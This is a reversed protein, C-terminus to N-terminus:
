RFQDIEEPTLLNELGTAPEDPSNTWALRYNGDGRTDIFVFTYGLQYYYWYERPKIEMEMTKREVADPEGYRVYVRGRDTNIGSTRGSRYRGEATEMRRVFETLNHKSWFWALYAVKGSDSLSNYYALEKPTAIFELKRYYKEEQPSPQFTYPRPSPATSGITFQRATTVTRNNSHDTLTVGFLYSGDQISDIGLELTISAKAGSKKRVIPASRVITDKSLVDVLHYRFEYSGSDPILGYGELYACLKRADSGFRRGPNPVVVLRGTATDRLLAVALQISSLAPHAAFDPVTLTDIITGQNLSDAITVKVEYTGPPANISFQDVFTRQHQAADQFSKIRARKNITGSESFQVDIGKLETSVTFLAVLGDPGPQFALQDFPVGYYFEVRSSDSEGQFVAWDLDFQLTAFVALSFLLLSAM